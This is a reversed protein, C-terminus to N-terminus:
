NQYFSTKYWKLIPLINWVVLDALYRLKMECFGVNIDQIHGNGVRLKDRQKAHIQIIKMVGEEFWIKGTM